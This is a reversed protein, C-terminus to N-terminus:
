GDNVVESDSEEFEFADEERYYTQGSIYLEGNHYTFVGSGGENNYWDIGKASMYMCVFEEIYENMNYRQPQKDWQMQAYVFLKGKGDPDLYFNHLADAKRRLHNYKPDDWKMDDTIGVEKRTDAWSPIESDKVYVPREVMGDDGGGNFEVTFYEIDKDKMTKFFSPLYKDRFEKAERERREEWSEETVPKTTSTSM